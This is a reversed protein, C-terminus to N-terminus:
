ITAITVWATGNYILVTSNDEDFSIEGGVLDAPDIANRENQTMKPLKLMGFDSINLLNTKGSANLTNTVQDHKLLLSEQGFSISSADTSLSINGNQALINGSPLDIGLETVTLGRTVTTNDSGIQSNDIKGTQINIVGLLNNIGDQLINFNDNLTIRDSAISNTGKLQTVEIM